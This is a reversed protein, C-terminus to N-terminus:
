ALFPAIEDDSLTNADKVFRSQQDPYQALARIILNIEVKDMYVQPREVLLRFQPSYQLSMAHQKHECAALEDMMHAEHARIDEELM